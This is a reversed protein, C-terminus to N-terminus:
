FPIPLPPPSQADELDLIIGGARRVASNYISAVIAYGLFGLPCYVVPVGIVYYALLYKSLYGVRLYAYACYFVGFFLAFILSYLGHWLAVALVNVHRLRMRVM